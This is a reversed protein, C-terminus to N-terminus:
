GSDITSLRGHFAAGTKEMSSLRPPCGTPGTPSLLVNARHEATLDAGPPTFAVACLFPV